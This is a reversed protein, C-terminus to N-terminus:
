CSHEKFSSFAHSFSFASTSSSNELIIFDKHAYLIQSLMSAIVPTDRCFWLWGLGSYIAANEYSHHAADKHNKRPGM